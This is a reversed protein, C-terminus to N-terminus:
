SLSSLLPSSYCLPISKYRRLVKLIREIQNDNNLCKLNVILKYIKNLLFAKKGFTLM